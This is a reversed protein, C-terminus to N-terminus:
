PRAESGRAQSREDLESRGGGDRGLAMAGDSPERSANRLRGMDRTKETATGRLARSSVFSLPRRGGMGRLPFMEIGRDREHRHLKGASLQGGHLERAVHQRLAVLAVAV